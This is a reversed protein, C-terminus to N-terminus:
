QTINHKLRCLNSGVTVLNDSVNKQTINHGNYRIKNGMKDFRSKTNIIHNSNLLRNKYKTINTM